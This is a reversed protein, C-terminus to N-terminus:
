LSIFFFPLFHSQGPQRSAQEQAAQTLFRYASGRSIGSLKCVFRFERKKLVFLFNIRSIKFEFQITQKFSDSLISYNMYLIM